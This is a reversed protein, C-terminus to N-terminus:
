KGEGAVPIVAHNDLAGGSGIPLAAHTPAPEVGDVQELLHNVSPEIREIFPRPYLGIWFMLIILPVIIIIERPVLDGLNRNEEHRITGFFVQQVLRLMYIAGLIVGTAAFITALKSVQFTGLLILFEGVFGNLGPLGISSLTTILFFLTYLPMVKALGGFDSILRTHRREYIMGVLLFLAGTSIGHGVMQMIGGTLGQLNLAFMGIMVFGLHSVSSYAILKKIDEQALALLAGYIIGIVALTMIWPTIQHVAEPFLPFCFRLFGYTGMKLLVGALVVSGATPAEVHADPLWTHLPFLPVKIAFALSFALCALLAAQGELPSTLLAALEFTMLGTVHQHHVVLYIIAALMLISGVMTFIFFKVAAYIRRTGGWIGILFYMPVLMIEWFVYFLFLDSAMFVGLIGTQLFLLCFHFLHVRETVSRWSGLVTLPAILTTLLILLLSIGDVGVAYDIGFRPIWAHSRVFQLGTDAVNFHFWLHLSLLFTGASIALSWWRVLDARERPILVIAVGGLLPLACLWTLIWSDIM